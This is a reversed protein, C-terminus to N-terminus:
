KIIGFEDLKKGEISLVSVFIGDTKIDAIIFHYKEIPPVVVGQRSKYTGKLKEGAGGTIIQYVSSKFGELPSGITRRSYNHEHGSFVIDIRCKDIIRWFNDREAPYLDLCHGLHAGTPFAPSHVFVIKSKRDASAAKELWAMQDKEIRHVSDIHFPNLVILRVDEFDKYYVTGNYGELYGDPAFDGYVRSLIKEYAGCKAPSVVEHNGAAPIIL